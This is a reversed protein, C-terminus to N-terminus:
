LLNDWNTYDEEESEHFTSSNSQINQVSGNTSPSKITSSTTSQQQKLKAAEKDSGSENATTTTTRTTTTTTTTTAENMGSFNLINFKNYSDLMDTFQNFTNNILNFSQSSDFAGGNTTLKLSLDMMQEEKSEKAGGNLATTSTTGAANNLDLNSISLQQSDNFNLSATMAKLLFIDEKKLEGVPDTNIPVQSSLTFDNLKLDNWNTIKIPTSPIGNPSISASSVSSPNSLPMQNQNALLLQQHTDTASNTQQQVVRQMIGSQVFFNSLSSAFNVFQNSSLNNLDCSRMNEM